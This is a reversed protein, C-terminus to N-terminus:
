KVSVQLKFVRGFERANGIPELLLIPAKDALTTLAALAARDYVSLLMLSSISVLSVSGLEDYM